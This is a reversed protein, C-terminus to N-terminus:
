PQEAALKAPTSVRVIRGETQAAYGNSRLVVDLADQWRVDEMRVTVSGKVEPDVAFNKKTLRSFVRLVDRIDADKLDLSIKGEADPVVKLVPKPAEKRDPDRKKDGAPLASAFASALLIAPFIRRWRKFTM